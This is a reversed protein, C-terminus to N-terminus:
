SRVCHVKYILLQAITSILITGAPHVTYATVGSVIQGRLREYHLALEPPLKPQQGDETATGSPTPTLLQPADFLPKLELIPREENDDAPLPTNMPIQTHMVMQTSASDGPGTALGLLTPHGDLTTLVELRSIAEGQSRKVETRWFKVHQIYEEWNTELNPAM